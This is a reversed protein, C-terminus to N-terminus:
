TLLPRVGVVSASLFRLPPCAFLSSGSSCPLEPPRFQGSKGGEYSRTFDQYDIKMTGNDMLIIAKWQHLPPLSSVGSTLSQNKNSLPKNHSKRRSCMRCTHYHWTVLATILHLFVLGAITNKQLTAFLKAGCFCM